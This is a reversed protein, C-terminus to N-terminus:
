GSGAQVQEAVAKGCRSLWLRSTCPCCGSWSATWAARKRLTCPRRGCNGSTLARHWRRGCCRGGRTLTAAHSRLSCLHPPAFARLTGFLTRPESREKRPTELLAPPVPLPLQSTKPPPLLVESLHSGWLTPPPRAAWKRGATRQLPQGRPIRWVAQSAYAAQAIFPVQPGLVVQHPWLLVVQHPWAWCSRILGPSPPGVGLGMRAMSPYAVHCLPHRSSRWMTRKLDFSRTCARSVLLRM